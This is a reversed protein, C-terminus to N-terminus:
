RGASHGSYIGHDPVTRDTRSFATLSGKSDGSGDPAAPFRSGAAGRDLYRRLEHVVAGIEETNGRQAQQVSILSQAQEARQRDTDAAARHSAARRQHEAVDGLGSAASRAHQIALREHADAARRFASVCSAAAREAAAQSALVHRQAAALRGRSAAPGGGTDPGADGQRGEKLEKIRVGIAELRRGLEYGRAPQLKPEREVKPAHETGSYNVFCIAPM